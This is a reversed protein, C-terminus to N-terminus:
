TRARAATRVASAARGRHGISSGCRVRTARSDPCTSTPPSRRVSTGQGVPAPYRCTTNCISIALNPITKNGANRIAIVLNTHQALRQASRMQGRDGRGSHGARRARTRGPVAGCAALAVAATAAAVITLTLRCREEHRQSARFKESRIREVRGCSVVQLRAPRRNTSGTRRPNTSRTTVRLNLTTNEFLPGITQIDKLRAPPAAAM